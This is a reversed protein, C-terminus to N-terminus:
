FYQGLNIMFKRYMWIEAFVLFISDTVKYVYVQGKPLQKFGELAKNCYDLVRDYLGIAEKWKKSSEYSQGIYYCRFFFFVSLM